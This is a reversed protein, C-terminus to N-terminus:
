AAAARGLEDLNERALPREGEEIEHIMAVLRAILPTDIDHARAIAMIPPFHEDVETRRKRVALDRWVGTHTKQDRRRVAVLRDLSAQATADLAAPDAAAIVDPEFGDFGMPTIGEAAAVSLVEQALRVMTSRYADIGDAMTENTLATAFLVAGYAQKGWLFGWINETMRVEGGGWRSLDQRLDALRPSLAGDLEGIYFAGPGAFHIVGPELYDASFNIFCGLTRDAGVAEAIFKENLGNQASLVYGDAALRPAIEDMAARTAPAKVALIVNGLSDPLQAVTIAPAPVTFTEDYGRVTLGDRNVADVHASDIDVFTVDVGARAMYAGLTGGIAGAGVIHYQNKMPNNM